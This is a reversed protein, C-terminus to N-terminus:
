SVNRYIGAIHRNEGGLRLPIALKSLEQLRHQQLAAFQACCKGLDIDFQRTGM